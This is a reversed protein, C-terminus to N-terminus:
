DRPQRPGQDPEKPPPWADIEGVGHAKDMGHGVTFIVWNVAFFLIGAVVAAVIVWAPTPLLPGERRTDELVPRRTYAGDM